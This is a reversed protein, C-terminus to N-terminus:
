LINLGEIELVKIERSYGRSLALAIAKATGAQIPKGEEANAATPRTINAEQALKNQTWGLEIRYERLTPV